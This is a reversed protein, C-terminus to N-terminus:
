YKITFKSYFRPPHPPTRQGGELDAVSIIKDIEKKM